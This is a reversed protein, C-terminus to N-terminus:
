AVKLNFLLIYVRILAASATSHVQKALMMRVVVGCRLDGNKQAVIPCFELVIRKKCFCAHQTRPGTAGGSQENTSKNRFIKRGRIEVAVFTNILM